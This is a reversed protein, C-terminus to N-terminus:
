ISHSAEQPVEGVTRVSESICSCAFSYSKCLFSKELPEIKLSRVALILVCKSKRGDTAVRDEGIV